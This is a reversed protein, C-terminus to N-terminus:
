FSDFSVLVKQAFISSFRDLFMNAKIKPINMLYTFYLCLGLDEGEKCSTRIPQHKQGAGKMRKQKVFHKNEIKANNVNNQSDCQKQLYTNTTPTDM